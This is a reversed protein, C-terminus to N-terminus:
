RSKVFEWITEALYAVMEETLRPHVGVWFTRETITDCNVLSGVTRHPRDQYAPHRTM